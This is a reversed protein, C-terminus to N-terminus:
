EHRAFEKHIEAAKKLYAKSAAEATEFSGLRHKVNNLRVCATWKNGVKTVGKFGSQNNSHISRNAGNQSRSAQRLNALRNDAPNGNIHDIELTPWEGYHHLWALRGASYVGLGRIRIYKYGRPCTVGAIKGAYQTNFIKIERQTGTRLKWVLDGTLTDFDLLSRLKKATLKNEKNM